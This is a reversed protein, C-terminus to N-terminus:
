IQQRFSAWLLSGRRAFESLQLQGDAVRKPEKVAMQLLKEAQWGAILAPRASLPITALDRRAQTLRTLGRQALASVALARGDLLPIRGRAELAPVAQLYSALASAWGFGRIAAEAQAGAGLAHACLWMLGAGTDDLYADFAAEDAFPDKNVDWLRAAILRDLVPVPLGKAVAGSLAVIVEHQRVIGKNLDAVADSWWQLRMEAIMPQESAWPARAVELNFAYLVILSPRAAVPAAMVAAFRSPDNSQVLKAIADMTM